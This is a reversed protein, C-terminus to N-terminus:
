ETQYAEEWEIRRHTMSLHILRCTNYTYIRLSHHILSQIVNPFLPTFYLFLTFLTVTYYVFCTVVIFFFSNIVQTATDLKYLYFCLKPIPLIM